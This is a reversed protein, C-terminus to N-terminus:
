CTGLALRLNNWMTSESCGACTSQLPFELYHTPYREQLEVAVKALSPPFKDINMDGLCCFIVNNLGQRVAWYLVMEWLGSKIYNETLVFLVKRSQQIGYIIESIKTGGPNANRDFIFLLKDWQDEVQGKLENVVWTVGYDNTEHEIHYAVFADYKRDMEVENHNRKFLRRKLSYMHWAIKWRQKYIVFISVIAVAVVSGMIGIAIYHRTQDCSEHLQKTDVNVLLKAENVCQFTDRGDVTVNTRQLWQLFHISTCDCLFPNGGLRLRFNGNHSAVAELQEQFTDSLFPIQNTSLDIVNLKKLNSIKLEITKLVNESLYLKQINTLNEFSEEPLHHLNNDSIDLEKLSTAESFIEPFDNTSNWQNGKAYLIELNPTYKQKFTDVHISKLYCFSADLVKLSRIGVSPCNLLLANNKTVNIFSITDFPYVIYPCRRFASFDWTQGAYVSDAFLIQTGPSVINYGIVGNYLVSRSLNPELNSKIYGSTVDFNELNPVEEVIKPPKRFYEEIEQEESACFKNEVAFMQGYLDTVDVTRINTLSWYDGTPVGSELVRRPNLSYLLINFLPNNGLNLHHLHPTCAEGDKNLILKVFMHTGRLSLRELNQFKQECFHSNGLSNQVNKSFIKTGDLVLTKLTDSSMDQIARFLTEALGSACAFNLTELFPLGNLTQNDIHRFACGRLTLHTLKNGQLGVLSQDRIQIGYNYCKNLRSSAEVHTLNKLFKFGTGFYFDQTADLSIKELSVLDRFVGDPISRHRHRTCNNSFTKLVKLATLDKFVGEPYSTPLCLRNGALNLIELRFLGDFADADIYTLGNNSLDIDAVDKVHNFCNTELRSLNNGHIDLMSTRMPLSIPVTTFGRVSCDVKVKMDYNKVITMTEVDYVLCTANPQSCEVNFFALVLGFIIVEFRGM